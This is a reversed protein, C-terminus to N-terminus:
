QPARELVSVSGVSNDVDVEMSEWPLMPEPCTELFPEPVGMMQMPISGVGAPEGNSMCVSRKFAIGGYGTSGRDQLNRRTSVRRPKSVDQSSNVMGRFTRLPRVGNVSQGERRYAMDGYIQASFDEVTPGGLGWVNVTQQTERNRQPLYLSGKRGFGPSPNGGGGQKATWDQGRGLPDWVGGKPPIFPFPPGACPGGFGACDLPVGDFPQM